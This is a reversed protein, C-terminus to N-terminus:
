PLLVFFHNGAVCGRKEWRNATDEDQPFDIVIYYLCCYVVPSLSLNLLISSEFLIPSISTRGTPPALSSQSFSFTTKYGPAFLPLEASRKLYVGAIHPFDKLQASFHNYGPLSSECIRLLDRKLTVGQGSAKNTIM